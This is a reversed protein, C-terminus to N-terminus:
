ATQVTITIARPWVLGRLIQFHVLKQVLNRVCHFPLFRFFYDAKTQFGSSESFHVTYILDVM